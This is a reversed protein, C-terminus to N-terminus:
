TGDPRLAVLVDVASGTPYHVELDATWARRVPAREFFESVREWATVLADPMPGRAAFALYEGAPVAVAVMGAPVEDVGTVEAGVVCRYGGRHEGEYDTYVACTTVTGARNPIRGALAEQRFRRWLLPVAATAPDAERQRTTRTEIGIVQTGDRRVREPRVTARRSASGALALM